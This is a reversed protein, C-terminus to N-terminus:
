LLAGSRLERSVRRGAAGSPLRAAVGRGDHHRPPGVICAIRRCGEIDEDTNCLVVSHHVRRAVDEVGRVMATFFQNEIDSIVCAWVNSVQKCLGRTILNPRYGLQAIARNVAEVIHPSVKGGNLWRSVTSRSVGALRAVDALTVPRDDGVSGDSKASQPNV